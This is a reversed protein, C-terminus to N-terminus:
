AAAGESAEGEQGTDETPPRLGLSEYLPRLDAQTPGHGAENAQAWFTNLAEEAKSIKANYQKEAEAKGANYTRLQDVMKAQEVELIELDEMAQSLEDEKTQVKQKAREIEGEIRTLAAEIGKLTENVEQLESM